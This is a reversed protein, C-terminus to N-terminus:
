GNYGRFMNAKFIEDISKANPILSNGNVLIEDFDELTMEKQVFEKDRIPDFGESKNRWIVVVDKEDRQGKVIIYDIKDDQKKQVNRVYIGAIYNFTEILDVNFERVENNHEVKLKYEFPNDLANLNLFVNSDKSEFDLM